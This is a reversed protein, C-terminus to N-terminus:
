ANKNGNETSLFWKYGIRGYRENIHILWMLVCWLVSHSSSSYSPNLVNLFNIDNNWQHLLPSIHSRPVLSELENEVDVQLKLM